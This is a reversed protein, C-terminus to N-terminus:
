SIVESLTQTSPTLHPPHLNTSVKTVKPILPTQLVLRLLFQVYVKHGLQYLQKGCPHLNVITVTMGTVSPIFLNTLPYGFIPVLKRM